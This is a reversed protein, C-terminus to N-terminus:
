LPRNFKRFYGTFPRSSNSKLVILMEDDTITPFSFEVDFTNNNVLSPLQNLQFSFDGAQSDYGWLAFSHKLLDQYIGSGTDMGLSFEKRIPTKKNFTLMAPIHFVNESGRSQFGVFQFIRQVEANENRAGFIFNDLHHKICFEKIFRLKDLFYGAKRYPELIGGIHSELNNNIINLALFGVYADHHKIFLISNNPHDKNLNFKKYYQFVCELEKEKSVNDKIYPTRYYGLPYTGWTGILMDKLLKDQSGDYMEFILDPFNYDGSPNESIRTKYRRISGSFFFPLGMKNLRATAMEDEAPVKLRCLDYRNEVIQSYLSSEDFSDSNCRGVKLGLIESEIASFDVITSM